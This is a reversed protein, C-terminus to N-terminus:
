IPMLNYDLCMKITGFFLQSMWKLYTKVNSIDYTNQIINSTNVMKKWDKTLIIDNEWLEIMTFLTTNKLNGRRELFNKTTVNTWTLENEHYITALSSKFTCLTKFTIKWLTVFHHTKLKCFQGQLWLWNRLCYTNIKLCLSLIIM